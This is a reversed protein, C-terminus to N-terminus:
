SFLGFKVSYYFKKGGCIIECSCKIPTRDYVSNFFNFEMVLEAKSIDNSGINAKKIEGLFWKHLMETFPLSLLTGDSAGGNKLDISWRGDSPLQVKNLYTTIFPVCRVRDCANYVIGKLLKLKM